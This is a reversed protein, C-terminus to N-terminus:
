VLFLIKYYHCVLLIVTLNITLIATEFTDFLPTEEVELFTFTLFNEASHNRKM